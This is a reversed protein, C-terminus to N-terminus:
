TCGTRHIKKRKLSGRSDIPKKSICQQSESYKSIKRVNRINNELKIRNHKSLVRNSKLEKSKIEHGLFHEIEAVHEM